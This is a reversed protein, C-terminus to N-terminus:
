IEFNSLSKLLHYFIDEFFCQLININETSKGLCTKVSKKLILNKFCYTKAIEDLAEASINSGDDQCYWGFFRHDTESTKNGISYYMHDFDFASQREGNPDINSGTHKIKLHTCSDNNCESSINCFELEFEYNIDFEKVFKNYNKIKFGDVFTVLQLHNKYKHKLKSIIRKELKGKEDNCLKQRCHKTIKEVDQFTMESIYDQISELSIDKRDIDISMGLNLEVDLNEVDLKKKDTKTDGLEIENNVNMNQSM